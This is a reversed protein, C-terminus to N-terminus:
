RRAKKSTENPKPEEERRQRRSGSLTPSAVVARLLASPIQQADRVLELRSGPAYQIHARIAVQVRLLPRVIHSVVASMLLGDALKATKRQLKRYYSTNETARDLTDHNDAYQARMATHASELICYTTVTLNTYSMGGGPGGGDNLYYLLAAPSLKKGSFAFPLGNLADFCTNLTAFDVQDQNSFFGGVPHISRDQQPKRSFYATQNAQNEYSSLAFLTKRLSKTHLLQAMQFVMVIFQVCHWGHHSFASASKGYVNEDYMPEVSSTMAAFAKRYLPIHKRTKKDTYRKWLNSQLYNLTKALVAFFDAHMAEDKDDTEPPLFWENNEHLIERVAEIEATDQNSALKYYYELKEDVYAHMSNSRNKGYKVIRHQDQSKTSFSSAINVALARIEDSLGSMPIVIYQMKENGDDTYTRLRNQMVQKWNKSDAAHVVLPSGEHEGVVLSVHKVELKNGSIVNSFVVSGIPYHGKAKVYTDSRGNM